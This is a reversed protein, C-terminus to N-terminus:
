PGPNEEPLSPKKRIERYMAMVHPSYLTSDPQFEPRLELAKSMAERARQQIHPSPSEGEVHMALLFLSELWYYSGTNKRGALEIAELRRLAEEPEGLRYAEMANLLAKRLAERESDASDPKRNEQRNVTTVTAPQPPSGSERPRQAVAQTSPEPEPPTPEPKERLRALMAKLEPLKLHNPQVQQLTNLHAEGKAIRKEAIALRFESIQNKVFADELVDVRELDLQAAPRDPFAKVLETFAMRAARFQNQELLRQAAEAKLQYDRERQQLFKALAGQIRTVHQNYNAREQRRSVQVENAAQSREIWRGAESLDGLKEHCLAIWLCPQYDEFFAGERKVNEPTKHLRYAEKFQTLAQEYNEAAFLDKGEFFFRKFERNLQAARLGPCLLLILLWPKM